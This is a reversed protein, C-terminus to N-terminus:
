DLSDDLGSLLDSIKSMEDSDLDALDFQTSVSPQIDLEIIQQICALQRKALSEITQQKHLRTSYTWDMTLVGDIFRVNIDLIFAREAQNSRAYGVNADIQTVSVPEKKASSLQKGLYNFVVESSSHLQLSPERKIERLIGYGIGSQPLADLLLQTQTFHTKLDEPHSEFLLPYVSTFWGVTHSLDVNDFLAERGHGEIAIRIDKSKCFECLVFSLSVLLVTQVDTHAKNCFAQLKENSALSDFEFSQTQQNGHTNADIPAQFDLPLTSLLPKVQQQWFDCQSNLQESYAYEQLKQSWYKFPTVLPLTQAVVQQQAAQWYHELEDSLISWSAIDVLLHHAVLVVLNTEPKATKVFLCRFLDGNQLHLSENIANIKEMASALAEEDTTADTEMFDIYQKSTDYHNIKQRISGDVEIFCSRLVHQRKLLTQMAVQLSAYTLTDPVSLVCSQNWHEPRTKINEFFWSQIPLLDFVGEGDMQQQSQQQSKQLCQAQLRITPFEFFDEPEIRYGAKNIRALIRISLLSDGGVEVFNDDISLEDMGLVDGWIQALLHELENSPAVFDDEINDDQSTSQESFQWPYNNLDQRHIKGQQTLPISDVIALSQPVFHAPLQVTIDEKLSELDITSGLHATVYATLKSEGQEMTNPYQELIELLAQRQSETLRQVFQLYGQQKSNLTM